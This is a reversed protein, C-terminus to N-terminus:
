GALSQALARIEDLTPRSDSLYSVMRRLLSCLEDSESPREHSLVVAQPSPRDTLM